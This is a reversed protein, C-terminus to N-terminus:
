LKYEITEVQREHNEECLDHSTFHNELCDAITSRRTGHYTIVLSGDIATPANTGDKKKAIPWLTQFTVECDRVKRERREIAKRRTM